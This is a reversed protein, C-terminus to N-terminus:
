SCIPSAVPTGVPSFVSSITFGDVPAVFPIGFGVNATPSGAILM